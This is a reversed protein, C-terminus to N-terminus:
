TRARRAFRYNRRIAGMFSHEQRAFGFDILSVEVCLHSVLTAGDSTLALSYIESVHGELVQIREFKVADWQKIKGDKGASWFLKEDLSPSFKM